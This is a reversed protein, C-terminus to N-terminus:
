QTTFSEIEYTGNIMQVLLAGFESSSITEGDLFFEACVDYGRLPGNPGFLVNYQSDGVITRLQQQCPTMTQGAESISFGYIESFVEVPSGTTNCIKKIRWAYAKGVELDRRTDSSLAGYSLSTANGLPAYEGTNDPYPYSAESQIADDPSGGPPIECIRIYYDDCGSSNWRFEPYTNNVFVMGLPPWELDINAPAVINIQKNPQFGIYDVSYGPATVNLTFSYNGAPMSGQTMVTTILEDRQDAEISNFNFSGFDIQNGGEDMLGRDRVNQDLDRNSIYLGAQLTVDVSADFLQVNNLGLSPIYATMSLSVTVNEIPYENDSSSLRYGFILPNNQGDEFDFDTLYIIDWEALDPQATVNLTQGSLFTTLILGLVIYINKKM